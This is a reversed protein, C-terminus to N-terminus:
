IVCVRVFNNETYVNADHVVVMLSVASLACVIALSITKRLTRLRFPCLLHNKPIFFTMAQCYSTLTYFKQRPSFEPM